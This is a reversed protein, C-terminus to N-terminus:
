MRQQTAPGIGCYAVVLINHRRHVGIDSLDEHQETNSYLFFHALSLKRIENPMLVLENHLLFCFRVKSVYRVGICTPQKSQYILALLSKSKKKKHASIQVHCVKIFFLFFIDSLDAITVDIL